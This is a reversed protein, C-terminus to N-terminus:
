FTGLLLKGGSCVDSGSAKLLACVCLLNTWTLSSLKLQVMKTVCFNCQNPVREKETDTMVRGTQPVSLLNM